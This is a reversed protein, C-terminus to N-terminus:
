VRIVPSQDWIGILACKVSVPELGSLARRVDRRHVKFRVALDRISLGEDRGALRIREYLEVKSM